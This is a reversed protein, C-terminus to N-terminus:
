TSLYPPPFSMCQFRQLFGFLWAHLVDMVLSSCHSVDGFERVSGTEVVVVVKIIQNVLLVSIMDVVLNYETM